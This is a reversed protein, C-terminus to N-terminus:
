HEDGPEKKVADYSALAHPTVVLDRHEGPAIPISVPPPLGRESRRRDIVQRVAGIHIIDRELVQVLAEELEAAGASDLLQLL